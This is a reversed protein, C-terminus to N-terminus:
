LGRGIDTFSEGESAGSLTSETEVSTAFMDTVMLFMSSPGDKGFGRAPLAPLFSCPPLLRGHNRREQKEEEKGKMRAM